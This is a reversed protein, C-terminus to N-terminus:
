RVAGGDRDADTSSDIASGACGEFSKTEDPVVSAGDRSVEYIM